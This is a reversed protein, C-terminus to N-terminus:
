FNLFFSFLCFYKIFLCSFAHVTAITSIRTMLCLKSRYPLETRAHEQALKPDLNQPGNLLEARKRENRLLKLGVKTFDGDEFDKIHREVEKRSAGIKTMLGQKSLGGRQYSQLAKLKEDRCNGQKAKKGRQFRRHDGAYQSEISEKVTPKQFKGLKKIVQKFKIDPDGLVRELDENPKYGLQKAKKKFNTPSTLGQNLKKFESHLSKMDQNYLISNVRKDLQTQKPKNGQM